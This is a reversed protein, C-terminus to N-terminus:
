TGSTAEPRPLCWAAKAPAKDGSEGKQPNAALILIWNKFEERIKNYLRSEKEKVIGEGEILKEVDRNFM